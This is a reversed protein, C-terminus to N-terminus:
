ANIDNAVSIAKMMEAGPKIQLQNGLKKQFAALMLQAMLVYDKVSRIVQVINMNRWRQPDLLSQYRADCLEVAVTDPKIERIVEEALEESKASVHATGVLHIVKNGLTIRDVNPKVQFVEM